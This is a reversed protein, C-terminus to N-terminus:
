QEGAWRNANGASPRAHVRESLLFLEFGSFAWFHRRSGCTLHVEAHLHAEHKVLSIPACHSYVAFPLCILRVFCHLRAM